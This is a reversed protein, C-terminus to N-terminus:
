GSIGLWVHSPKVLTPSLAPCLAELLFFSTESANISINFAQKTLKSSEIELSIFHISSFYQSSVASFSIFEMVVTPSQNSIGSDRVLKSLTDATFSHQFVMYFYVVTLIIRCYFLTLFKHAIQAGRGDFESALLAISQEGAM